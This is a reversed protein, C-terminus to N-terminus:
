IATSRRRDDVLEQRFEEMDDRQVGKRISGGGPCFQHKRRGGKSLSIASKHVILRAGLSEKLGKNRSFRYLFAPAPQSRPWLQVIYEIFERLFKRSERRRN